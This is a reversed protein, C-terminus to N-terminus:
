NYYDIRVRSVVGNIEAVNYYLDCKKHNFLKEFNSYIYLICMGHKKCTMRCVSWIRYNQKYITGVQIIYLNINYIRTYM